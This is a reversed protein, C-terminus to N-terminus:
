FCGKKAVKQDKNLGHVGFLTFINKWNRFNQEKFISLTHYWRLLEIIGCLQEASKIM